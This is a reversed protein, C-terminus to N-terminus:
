RSHIKREFELLKKDAFAVARRQIRSPHDGLTDAMRRIYVASDGLLNRLREIEEADQSQPISSLELLLKHLRDVLPKRGWGGIDHNATDDWLVLRDAQDGMDSTMLEGIFSEALARLEQGM